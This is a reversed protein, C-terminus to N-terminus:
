FSCVPQKRFNALILKFIALAAPTVPYFGSAKHPFIVPLFPNVTSFWMQGNM